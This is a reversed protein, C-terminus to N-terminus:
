VCIARKLFQNYAISFDKLFFPEVMTSNIMEFLMSKSVLATSLRLIGLLNRASTFTMDRSNRAEKRIEVYASVIYDTLDEPIVPQISRCYSVYRRMLNMPMPDFNAQPERCFMHVQTIHDALRHFFIIIKQLFNAINNMFVLLVFQISFFICLMEILLISVFNFKLVELWSIQSNLIIDSVINCKM